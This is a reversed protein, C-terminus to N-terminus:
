FTVMRKAVIKVWQVLKMGTPLIRLDFFFNTPLVSSTCPRFLFSFQFPFRAYLCVKMGLTHGADM